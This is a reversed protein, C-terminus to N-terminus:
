KLLRRAQIRVEERFDETAMTARQDILFELEEVVDRVLWDMGDADDDFALTQLQMQRISETQEVYAPFDPLSASM